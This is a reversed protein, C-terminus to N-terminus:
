PQIEEQLGHEKQLHSRFTASDSETMGSLNPYTALVFWCFSCSNNSPTKARFNVAYTNRTLKGNDATDQSNTM